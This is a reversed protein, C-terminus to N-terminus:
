ASLPASAPRWRGAGAPCSMSRRGGPSSAGVALVSYVIATWVLIATWDAHRLSLKITVGLVGTLVAFGLAPVLWRSTESM